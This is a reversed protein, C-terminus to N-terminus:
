PLPHGVAHEVASRREPHDAAQQRAREEAEAVRDLQMLARIRMAEREEAQQVPFWRAHQDALELVEAFRKAEVGRRMKLILRESNVRVAPSAGGVSSSSPSSSSLAAPAADAAPPAEQTPPDELLPAAEAPKDRVNRPATDTFWLALGAGVAAGILFTGVITPGQKPRDAPARSTNGTGPHRIADAVRIWLRAGRDFPIPSPRMAETLAELSGFGLFPGRAKEEEDDKLDDKAMQLRWEVKGKSVGTVAAIEDVTLGHRVQLVLAERRDEDPIAQHLTRLLTMEEPNLGPAASLVGPEEMPMEPKRRKRRRYNSACRRVFGGIWSRPSQREPDYMAIQAHVSQWVSQAVDEQDLGVVGYTPLLQFVFQWYNSYLWETTLRPDGLPPAPVEPPNGGPPEV